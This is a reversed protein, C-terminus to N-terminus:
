LGHMERLETTLRNRRRIEMWRSYEGAELISIKRTLGSPGGLVAPQWSTNDIRHLGQGRPILQISKWKHLVSALAVTLVFLVGAVIGASEEAGYRREVRGGIATAVAGFVFMLFQLVAIGASVRPYCSFNTRQERIRGSVPKRSPRGTMGAQLDSTDFTKMVLTYTEATALNAGFGVLGACVCPVAVPFPPNRSSLAYGIATVPLFVTFITRRLAHSSGLMTKQFTMSDTRPPHYRSRSLWSGNQFPIAM